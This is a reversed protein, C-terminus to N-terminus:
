WFDQYRKLLLIIVLQMAIFSLLVARLNNKAMHVLMAGSGLCVLPMVFIWLRAVEGKTQGFLALSLILVSTMLVILNLRISKRNSFNRFVSVMKASFLFVLPLGVWWAFEILNLGAFKFTNLVGPQWEKWVRHYEMASEFRILPNYDLILLGILFTGAFGIVLGGLVEFLSQLSREKEKQSCFAIIIIVILIIGLPLLSFSVFISVYFLLGTGAGLLWCKLEISKFATYVTMMFLAPYIVQDLHLTVLTVSPIMIYLFCATWAAREGSINRAFLFLPILVLYSILPFIYSAFTVLRVFQQKPTHVPNILNSVRQTLMHFLLHGPPKTNVYKLTTDSKCFDEYEAAAKRLDNKLVALRAFEAHGSVVLRSRIGDIGRGSIFGFSM